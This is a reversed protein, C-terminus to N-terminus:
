KRKKLFLYYFFASRQNPWLSMVTFPSQKFCSCFMTLALLHRRLRSKIQFLPSDAAEALADSFFFLFKLRRAARLQLTDQKWRRLARVLGVLRKKKKHRKRQSKSMKREAPSDSSLAILLIIAALNPSARTQAAAKLLKGPLRAM